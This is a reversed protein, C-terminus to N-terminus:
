EGILSPMNNIIKETEQYYVSQENIMKNIAKNLFIKAQDIVHLEYYAQGILAYIYQEAIHTTDKSKEIVNMAREGIKIVKEPYKDKLSCMVDIYTPLYYTRSLNNLITQYAKISLEHNKTVISLCAIADCYGDSNISSKKYINAAKQYFVAAVDWLQKEKRFIDGMGLLANAIANNEIQFTKYKGMLAQYEYYIANEYQNNLILSDAYNTYTTNRWPSYQMIGYEDYLSLVKKYNEISGKVDGVDYLLLSYDSFLNAIQFNEISGIKESSEVAENLKKLAIDNNNLHAYHMGITKKIIMKQFYYNESNDDSISDILKEAQMVKDIACSLNSEMSFIKSYNNYLEALIIIDEKNDKDYSSIIIDLMEKSLNYKGVEKFVLAAEKNVLHRCFAFDMKKLRIINLAYQAYKVCKATDIDPGVRLKFQLDDLMKKCDIYSISNFKYICECIIEHMYVGEYERKIWGKNELGELYNKTSFPFWCNFDSYSIKTYAPLISLLQTIMQEEKSLDSLNYVKSIQLSIDENKFLDNWDSNASLQLDKLQFDAYRLEKYFDTLSIDRYSISKAFLEIALTYRHSKEIIDSIIIDDKFSLYNSYLYNKKFIRMCDEESPTDLTYVQIGIPQSRSTILIDAPLKVIETLEASDICNFNDVIILLSKTVNSLHEIIINYKEIKSLKKDFHFGSLFICTCVSEILSNNYNIWAVHDYKNELEFYIQKALATKGIGGVGNLVVKHKASLYEKVKRKENERGVFCLNEIPNSTLRKKLIIGTDVNQVANINANDFALNFQGGEHIHVEVRDTKDGRM